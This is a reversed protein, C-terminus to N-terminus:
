SGEYHLLFRPTSSSDAASDDGAIVHLRVRVANGVSMYVHRRRDATGHQAGCVVKEDERDAAGIESM